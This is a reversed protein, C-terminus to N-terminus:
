ITICSIDRLVHMYYEEFLLRLAYSLGYSNNLSVLTMSIQSIFM